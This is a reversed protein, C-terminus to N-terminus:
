QSLIRATPVGCVVKVAHKGAVRKFRSRRLSGSPPEGVGHAEVQEHLNEGRIALVRQMDEVSDGDFVELAVQLEYHDLIHLSGVM